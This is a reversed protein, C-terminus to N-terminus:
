RYNSTPYASPRTTDNSAPTKTNNSRSTSSNNGRDSESMRTYADRVAGQANEWTLNASAGKQNWGDRLDAQNLDEFKTGPNRNFTEVGYRYAPEYNSYDLSTQYYPRSNYTASWYQNQQQWVEADYNPDTYKSPTTATDAAGTTSRARQSQYDNDRAEGLVPYYAAIVSALAIASAQLSLKKM